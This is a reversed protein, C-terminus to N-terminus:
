PEDAAEPVNDFTTADEGLNHIHPKAGEKRADTNDQPNHEKSM